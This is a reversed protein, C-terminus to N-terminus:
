SSSAAIKQRRRQVYIPLSVILSLAFAVLWTGMFVAPRLVQWFIRWLEQLSRHPHAWECRVYDVQASLVICGAVLAGFLVPSRTALLCVILSAFIVVPISLLWGAYGASRIVPGSWVLLSLSAILALIDRAAPIRILRQLALEIRQFTTARFLWFLLLSVTFGYGWFWALVSPMDDFGGRVWSLVTATAVGIVASLLIRSTLFSGHHKAPIHM